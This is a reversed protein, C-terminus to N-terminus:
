SYRSLSQFCVNEFGKKHPVLAKFDGGQIPKKRRGAYGWGAMCCPKQIGDATRGTVGVKYETLRVNPQGAAIIGCVTFDKFIRLLPNVIKRLYSLIITIHYVIDFIM